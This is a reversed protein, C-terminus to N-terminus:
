SENKYVGIYKNFILYIERLLPYFMNSALLKEDSM